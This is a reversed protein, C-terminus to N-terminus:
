CPFQQHRPDVTAGLRRIRAATARGRLFRYRQSALANSFNLWQLPRANQLRCVAVSKVWIMRRPYSLVFPSSAIRSRPFRELRCPLDQEFHFPSAENAKFMLRSRPLAIGTKRLLYPPNPDIGVLGGPEQYKRSFLVGYQLCNTALDFAM